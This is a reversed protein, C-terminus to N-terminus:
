FDSEQISVNSKLNRKAKKDLIVDFKNASVGRVPRLLTINNKSFKTGKKIIKSTWIGRRQIVRTEIECEEVRKIGDGLAKELIRIRKVMNLFEKPEMSHPHDPGNAKKNLTFHKEIVCAGLAISALIVLDGPSHDSYGVDLSFKKKFTNLVKLNAQEIPSPYQTISQMLIIKKNNTKQIVKVADQVEKMTSAGTALFIPKKTEGVHRLLDLNTIEGSGIKFVPMNLKNLLDVSEKYYPTSLFDIGVKKSYENLEKHWSLPLEAKKYIDWVSKKWKKQFTSRKEFGKKELIKETSFTQFKVADAESEKAIKILKKAKSINGDFNSGIEAIVYTPYKEGVIRKRIKIPTIKM